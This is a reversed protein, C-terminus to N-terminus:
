ENTEERRILRENFERKSLVQEAYDKILQYAGHDTTRVTINYSYEDAEYERRYLYEEKM